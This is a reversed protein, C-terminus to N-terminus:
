ANYAIHSGREDRWGEMQTLGQSLFSSCLLIHFLFPLACLALSQSFLFLLPCFLHLLHLWTQWDKLVILAQNLNMTFTGKGLLVWIHCSLSLNAQDSVFERCCCVLGCVYVCARVFVCSRRIDKCILASRPPPFLRHFCWITILFLSPSHMLSPFSTISLCLHSSSSLYSPKLYFM